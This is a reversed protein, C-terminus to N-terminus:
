LLETQYDENNISALYNNKFRYDESVDKIVHLEDPLLLPQNEDTLELELTAVNKWFDYIDLEFYQNKYLFCYRSKRIPHKQKDARKLLEHYTESDIREEFEHCVTGSIRIKLTEYYLIENGFSRKRIRHTGNLCTLYVQEIKSEFAGFRKLVADDPKRILLKRETELHLFLVELEKEIDSVTQCVRVRPHGTWQQVATECVPVMLFVAEYEKWRLISVAEEGNFYEFTCDHCTYSIKQKSVIAFKM